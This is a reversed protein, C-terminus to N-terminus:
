VRQRGREKDQEKERDSTLSRTKGTLDFIFFCGVVLLHNAYVIWCCSIPVLFYLSIALSFSLSPSLSPTHTHTHFTSLSLAIKSSRSSLRGLCSNCCFQSQKVSVNSTKLISCHQWVMSKNQWFITTGWQM